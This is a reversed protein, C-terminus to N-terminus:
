HDNVLVYRYRAKGNDMDVIATNAGSMPREEIWPKINHKVALDLMERIESPSGILTGALQRNANILSFPNLPLTGDDPAGLQVFTGGVKLLEIFSALPM